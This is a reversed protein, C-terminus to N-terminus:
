PEPAVLLREPDKTSGLLRDSAPNGTSPASGSGARGSKQSKGSPERPGPIGRLRPGRRTLGKRQDRAQIRGPRGQPCLGAVAERLPLVLVRRPTRTKFRPLGLARRGRNTRNAVVM